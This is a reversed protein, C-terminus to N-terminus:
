GITHDDPLLTRADQWTSTGTRLARVLAAIRRGQVVAGHLENPVSDTMAATPEPLGLFGLKLISASWAERHSDNTQADASSPGIVVAAKGDLKGRDRLGELLGLYASWKESDPACQPSVGFIVAEAWLVDAEAPTVYERQMRRHSEQCDTPPQDNEQDPMRRLRILCRGQVAGLAASAALKETSGCRSYFTVLVKSESM